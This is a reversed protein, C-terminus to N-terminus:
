GVGRQDHTSGEPLKYVRYDKVAVLSGNGLHEGCYVPSGVHVVESLTNDYVEYRKCYQRDDAELELIRLTLNGKSPAEVRDKREGNGGFLRNLINMATLERVRYRYDKYCDIWWMRHPIGM